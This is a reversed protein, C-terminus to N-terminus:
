NSSSSYLRWVDNAVDTSTVPPTKFSNLLKNLTNHDISHTMGTDLVFGPTLAAIRIGTRLGIETNLVRTYQLVASKTAAYVATGPVVPTKTDGLISSINIIAPTAHKYRHCTKILPRLSLQTMSILSTLNVNVLRTLDSTTTRVALSKQMVGACNVLLDLYYQEQHSKQEHILSSINFIRTNFQKITKDTLSVEWCPHEKASAWQPWDNFNICIGRIFQHSHSGPTASYTELITNLTNVVSNRSSGVYICSIGQYLLLRVVQYGIGKTGGTVVAVPSPM